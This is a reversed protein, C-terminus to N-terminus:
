HSSADIRIQGVVGSPRAYFVKNWEARGATALLWQTLIASMTTRNVDAIDKFLQILDHDLSLTLTGKRRAM